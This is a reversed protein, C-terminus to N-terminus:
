TQQLSLILKTDILLYMLRINLLARGNVASQLSMLHVPFLIGCMIRMWHKLSKRCQQKEVSM